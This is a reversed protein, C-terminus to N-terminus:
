AKWDKLEPGRGVHLERRVSNARDFADVEDEWNQFFRRLSVEWFKNSTPPSKARSLIREMAFSLHEQGVWPFERGVKRLLRQMVDDDAASSKETTEQRNNIIPTVSVADKTNENGGNETSIVGKVSQRTATKFRSFPTLKDGKQTEILYETAIGRGGRAHAVARLVGRHQLRRLLRQIQRESYGSKWALYRVGPYCKGGDDHAHDALALLVLKEDRRLDLAWVEAMVKVSM